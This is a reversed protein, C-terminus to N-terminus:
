IDGYLSVFDMKLANGAASADQTIETITTLMAISEDLTNGSINLSSAANQLGEGIDAATVAYKNAVANLKDGIDDAMDTTLQFGKMTSILTDSADNVSSFDGVNSFITATKGLDASESMSYGMRAFESSTNILDSVTSGIEKATSTANSLFRSYAVETEDTVKRLEAMATNVTTVENAMNKVISKAGQFIAVPSAIGLLQKANEVLSFGMRTAATDVTNFNQSLTALAASMDNYAKTAAATDGAQLAERLQKAADTAKNYQATLNSSWNENNEGVGMENIKELSKQAEKLGDTMNEIHADKTAKEDAAKRAVKYKEYSATLADIAEQLQKTDGAEKAVDYANAAAKADLLEQSNEKGSLENRNMADNIKEVTKDAKPISKQVKDDAKKQENLADTVSKIADLAGNASQKITDFYKGLSQTDGAQKMKELAQQMNTITKADVIGGGAEAEKKIVGDILAQGKSVASSRMSSLAKAVNLSEDRQTTYLLSVWKSQEANLGTTDKQFRQYYNDYTTSASKQKKTFFEQGKSDGNVIARQMAIYSREAESYAKRMNRYATQQSKEYAKDDADGSVPAQEGGSKKIKPTAVEPQNVQPTAGKNGNVKKNFEENFADGAKSGAQEFAGKNVTAKDINLEVNVKIKGGTSFQNDAM